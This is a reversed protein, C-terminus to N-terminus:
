VGSFVRDAKAKPGSRLAGTAANPLYSPATSITAEARDLQGPDVGSGGGEDILQTLAYDIICLASATSHRELGHWAILM